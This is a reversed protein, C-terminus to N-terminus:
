TCSYLTAITNIGHIHTQVISLGIFYGLILYVKNKADLNNNNSNSINNTLRKFWKLFDGVSSFYTGIM